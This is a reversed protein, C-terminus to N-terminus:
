KNEKLSHEKLRVSRRINRLLTRKVNEIGKAPSGSVSIKLPKGGVIIEIKHHGGKGSKHYGNYIYNNRLCWERAVKDIIRDLKKAM